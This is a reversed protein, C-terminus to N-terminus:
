DLAHDDGEEPDDMPALNECLSNLGGLDTIESEKMPKVAALNHIIYLDRDVELDLLDNISKSIERGINGLSVGVSAANDIIEHPAFHLISHDKSISMGTSIEANRMKAAHMARGLHLDDADPQTQIRQSSRREPTMPNRIGGFAIGEDVSFQALGQETGGGSPKETALSAVPVSEEVAASHLPNPISSHVGGFLEGSDEIRAGALYQGLSVPPLGEKPHSMGLSTGMPKKGPLKINASRAPRDLGAARRAGGVRAPASAPVFSGFRFQALPAFVSHKVGGDLSTSEALEMDKATEPSQLKKDSERSGSADDGDTMHVDKNAVGEHFLPPNEVEIQLTFRM